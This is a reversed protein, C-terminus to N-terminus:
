ASDCKRVEGSGRRIKPPRDQWVLGPHTGRGRIVTESPLGGYDLVGEFRARVYTYPDPANHNQENEADAEADNFCQNYLSEAMQVIQMQGTLKFAISAAIRWSLADCFHEDFLTPDTVDLTYEASCNPTNTLILKGEPDNVIQYGIYDPIACDHEDFLKRLYVCNNPYRYAFLYNPPKFPVLGLTVRRTAWPWPYRRLVVRRDHDYFQKCRRAPETEEDLTEIIDAGIRTLAMNCIEVKDM